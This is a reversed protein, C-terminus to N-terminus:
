NPKKSEKRRARAHAIQTRTEENIRSHSKTDKRKGGGNERGVGM